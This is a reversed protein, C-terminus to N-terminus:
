PTFKAKIKQNAQGQLPSGHGFVAQDFPYEAMQQLSRIGVSRDEYVTSFDLGLIHACTDGAIMVGEEKLWLAMHGVSHGPTHLVQLGGAVAILDTHQLREDVRVPPITGKGGKIFLQYILGNVLGPSPYIPFQGSSGAELLPAELQHALVPVGLQAQLASASGAHDPHAHTLIVRKIAYPNEGQKQLLSLITAMSGPYGTDILTLGNDKIVFANVAGLRLQFLRSTIPQIRAM